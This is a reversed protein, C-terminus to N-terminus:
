PQKSSERKFRVDTHQKGVTLTGSVEGGKLTGVFGGVLPGDTSGGRVNATRRDGGWRFDTLYAVDTSNPQHLTVIGAPVLPRGRRVTNGFLTLSGSDPTGQGTSLASALRVVPAYFGANAGADQDSPQLDYRGYFAKDSAGLGDKELKPPTADTLKALPLPATPSTDDNVRKYAIPYTGGKFTLTGSQTTPDTPIQFTVAGLRQSSGQSLVGARLLRNTFSFPYVNAIFTSQRGGSDFGSLTLNGVLYPHPTETYDIMIQGSTIKARRDIESVVYRGVFQDGIAPEVLVRPQPLGTGVGTTASALGATTALALGAGVAAVIMTRRVMPRVYWLAELM